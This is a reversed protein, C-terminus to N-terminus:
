TGGLENWSTENVLQMERFEAHAAAIEEAAGELRGVNKQRAVVQRYACRAMSATELGPPRPEQRDLSAAFRPEAPAEGERIATNFRSRADNM